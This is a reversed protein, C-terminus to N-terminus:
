EGNYAKKLVAIDLKSMTFMADMARKAKVTDADQLMATFEIPVIQWSIGYQDKLWGCNSEQAGDGQLLKEWYYDVEAQTECNVILSIAETFKFEPGGNLAVFELGELAFEVTMVSGENQGHIERGSDLYRTRKGLKSNKFISTYFRAAQEAQGDFWLNTQIKSMTKTSLPTTLRAEEFIKLCVAACRECIYVRHPGAVMLNNPSAANGCFSCEPDPATTGKNKSSIIKIAM